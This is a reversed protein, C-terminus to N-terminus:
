EDAQPLADVYCARCLECYLHGDDATHSPENGCRICRPECPEHQTLDLLMEALAAIASDPIQEAQM